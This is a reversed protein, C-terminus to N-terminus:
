ETVFHINSDGHVLDLVQVADDSAVQFGKVQTEFENEGKEWRSTFLGNQEMYDYISIIHPNVPDYNGEWIDFAIERPQYVQKRNYKFATFNFYKKGAEDLEPDIGICNMFGNVYVVEDIDITGTKDSGAALCSAAVLMPDFKGAMFALRNTFMNNMIYQYIALNERPSDITKVIEEEGDMYTTVLRGCFDLSLEAGPLALVKMAENFGQDLVAQPARVINLRGFEVETAEEPNEVEGEENLDLPSGDTGIPQVYWENNIEILDPVGNLDRLLVYLDGYDGGKKVGTVENGKSHTNADTNGKAWAPRDSDDDVVFAQGRKDCQTLLGISAVLFFAFIIRYHKM